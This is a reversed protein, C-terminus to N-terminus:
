TKENTDLKEKRAKRRQPKKKTKGQTEAAFM